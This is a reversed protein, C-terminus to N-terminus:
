FQCWLAGSAQPNRFLKMASGALIQDVEVPTM